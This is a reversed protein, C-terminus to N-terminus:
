LSPPLKMWSDSRTVWLQWTVSWDKTNGKCLKSPVCIKAWTMRQCLKTRRPLGIKRRTLMEAIMIADDIDIMDLKNVILKAENELRM